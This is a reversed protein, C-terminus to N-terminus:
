VTVPPTSTLSRPGNGRANKAVVTCYYSKGVTAGPVGIPSKSGAKAVQTGGNSSACIASYGTIKAGNNMPATFTLRLRGAAPSIVKINGPRGPAGATVLGTAASQAGTGAANIAAVKFTYSTANTLGKVVETTATSKFTKAAQAIGAKYPTVVYGTIAAGGTTKPAIWSVKVSANGPVGTAKTPAGPAAPAPCPGDLNSSGLFPSATVPGSTQGSPGSAQGWWNCTANATTAGTNTVNTLSNRNAAVTAHAAGTEEVYLPSGPGAITNHDLNAHVDGDGNGFSTTSVYVGVSNVTGTSTVSNDSFTTAPVVGGPCSNTGALNCSAFAGLPVDCGTVTNNTVTPSFYPVFTWVGYGGSTCASVHNGSIVDAAGGDGGNNDTHVGSGSATVTNNTYQTGTSWNSSIADNANSVHNGSMVGSGGFNFMAVSSPDAQVNNVTDNTFNFTGGSSAYIGRLFINQVTVDHVSLGNFVGANHNTIIGNRADINAGGVTYSSTLSPNDGDVTLQTITVNNAQVLLVSSGGGCLSGGGADGTCNPGSTAPIVITSGQGAGTLALPTTIVVNEAYTGAAVTVTGGASVNSVGAQITQLPDTATGTNGDNGTAGNVFCAAGCNPGAASAPAATLALAGGVLAIAVALSSFVRFKLVVVVGM